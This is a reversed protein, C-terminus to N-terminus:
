NTSRLLAEKSLLLFTDKENGLLNTASVGIKLEMQQLYGVVSYYTKLVLFDYFFKLNEINDIKSSDGNKLINSNVFSEIDDISKNKFVPYKSDFFKNKFDTAANNLEPYIKFRVGVSVCQNSNYEICGIQKSFVSNTNSSIKDLLSNVSQNYLSLNYNIYTLLDSATDTDININNEFDKLSDLSLKELVNYQYFVKVLYDLEIDISNRINVSYNKNKFLEEELKEKIYKYKLRSDKFNELREKFIKSIKKNKEPYLFEQLQTEKSDIYGVASQRQTDVYSVAFNMVKTLIFDQEKSKDKSQTGLGQLWSNRAHENNCQKVSLLDIEVGNVTNSLLETIKDMIKDPETKMCEDYAIENIADYSSKTETVTTSKGTSQTKDRGGVEFGSYFNGVLCNDEFAFYCNKNKVKETQDARSDTNDKAATATSTTAAIANKSLSMSDTPDISYNKYTCSAAAAAYSIGSIYYYMVAEDSTLDMITASLEDTADSAMDKVENELEAVENNITDLINDVSIAPMNMQSKCKSCLNKSKIYSPKFKTDVSVPDSIKKKFDKVFEDEFYGPFYQTFDTTKYDTSTKLLEKNIIKNKESINNKIKININQIDSNKMISNLYTNKKLTLDFSSSNDIDTEFYICYSKKDEISIFSSKVCNNSSPKKTPCYINVPINKGNTDKQYSVMPLSKEYSTLCSGFLFSTSLLSLLITKKM